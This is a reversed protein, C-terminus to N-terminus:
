GTTLECVNQRTIYKVDDVQTVKEGHNVNVVAICDECIESAVYKEVKIGLQELVVFGPRVCMYVSVVANFNSMCFM